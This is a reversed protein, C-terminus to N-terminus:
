PKIKIPDLCLYLEIQQVKSKTNQRMNQSPKEPFKFLIKVDWGLQFNSKDRLRENSM